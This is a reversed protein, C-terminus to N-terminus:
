RRGAIVAYPLAWETRRADCNRAILAAGITALLTARVGIYWAVWDPQAGLVPPQPRVCTCPSRCRASTPPTPRTTPNNPVRRITQFSPRAAFFAMVAFTAPVVLDAASVRPRAARLPPHGRDGAGSWSWPAGIYLLPILSGHVYTLYPPVDHLGRAGRCRCRRRARRAAGPGARRRLAVLLGYFALVPLVDRLGSRWSPSRRAPDGLITAPWIAWPLCRLATHPCSARLLLPSPCM